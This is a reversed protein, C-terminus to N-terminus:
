TRGRSHARLARTGVDNARSSPGGESRESEMGGATPSEYGTRRLGCGYRPNFSAALEGFAEGDGAQSPQRLKQPLDNQRPASRPSSPRRAAFRAGPGESPRARGQGRVAAGGRRGAAATSAARGTAPLLKAGHAKTGVLSPSGRHDRWVANWASVFRSANVRQCWHEHVERVLKSMTMKQNVEVLARRRSDTPSGWTSFYDVDADWAGKDVVEFPEAAALM